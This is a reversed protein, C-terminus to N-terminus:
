CVKPAVVCKDLQDYKTHRINVDNTSSAFDAIRTYGSGVPLFPKLVDYVKKLKLFESLWALIVFSLLNTWNKKALVLSKLEYM